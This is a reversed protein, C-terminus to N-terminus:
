SVNFELVGDFDKDLIEKSSFICIRRSLRQVKRKLDQSKVNKVKIGSTTFQRIQTSRM